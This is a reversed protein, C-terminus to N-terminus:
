PVSHLHLKWEFPQYLTPIEWNLISILIFYFLALIISFTVCSIKETDLQIDCNKEWWKKSDWLIGPIKIEVTGHFM